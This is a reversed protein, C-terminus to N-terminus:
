NWVVASHEGVLAANSVPRLGVETPIAVMSSNVSPNGSSCRGCEREVGRQQRLHQGFAAAVGVADAFPVQRRQLLGIERGGFPMPRQGAAEFTEVSEHAALGVLPIRLQDVVVVRHGRRGGRLLAIVEGLVDGVPGDFEDAVGLHDRGVPRPEGIHAGTGAVCRVVDELLPGVAIRAAEVHAVLPVALDHQLVLLPHADDRRVGFQRRDIRIGIDGARAAFGHGGCSM